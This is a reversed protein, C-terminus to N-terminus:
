HMPTKLGFQDSDEFAQDLAQDIEHKQQKDKNVLNEVIKLHMLVHDQDYDIGLGSHKIYGHISYLSFMADEQEQKIM